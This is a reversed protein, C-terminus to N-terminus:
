SGSGQPLGQPQALPVGAAAAINTYKTWGRLILDQGTDAAENAAAALADQEGPTEVALATLTAAIHLARLGAIIEAHAATIVDVQTKDFGKDAIADSLKFKKLSDAAADLQAALADMDQATVKPDDGKTLADIAPGLTTAIQPPLSGQLQGLTSLTPELGTKWAQLAQQQSAARAQADDQNRNKDLGEWVWWCMSMLFVGAIFAATVRVWTRRGFPKPVPVPARRPARAPQKPRTKGKGKIAM